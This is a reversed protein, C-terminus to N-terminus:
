GLGTWREHAGTEAATHTVAAEQVPLFYWAQADRNDDFVPMGLLLDDLSSPTRGLLGNLIVALEARRLPRDADFTEGDFGMVWGNGAAFSIEEAEWGAKLSPWVAAAEEHMSLRNLTCALEPGTVAEEPHFLGDPQLNMVEMECVLVAAGHAWHEPPMDPLATDAQEPVAEALRLLVVALQARTLAAEARITGDPYGALYAAHLAGAAEVPISFLLFLVAFLIFSRIKKM